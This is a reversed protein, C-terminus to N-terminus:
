GDELVPYNSTSSVWIDEEDPYKDNAYKWAEEETNFLLMEGKENSLPIETHYKTGYVRVIRYKLPKKVM